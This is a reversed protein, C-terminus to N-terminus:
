QTLFRNRAAILALGYIGLALLYLVQLGLILSAYELVGGVAIGLLNAGFASHPQEEKKFARSFLISAFFIPFSLWAGVFLVRWAFDYKLIFDISVFYGLLLGTFVGAYCWSTKLKVREKWVLLNAAFVVTLISGIMVASVIWTSGFLVAAKTISRAELLMFGAGLLFFYLHHTIKGMPTGFRFVVFASVLILLLVIIYTKPLTPHSLYLHPWDDTALVTSNKAKRILEPRFRSVPVKFNARTGDFIGDPGMAFAVSGFPSGETSLMIPERGFAETMTWYLREGMWKRSSSLHVIFISQPNMLNRVDRFAEVTYMYSELRLTSLGPLQLHSDLANMLILDYEERDRRLFSRGDDNIIRVRPDLYPRHPHTVLGQELIVPDIEVVTVKEAGHTLAMTADNGSGGGLILTRGPARFQYPLQYYPIWPALSTKELAPSFHLADQIRVRDVLIYYGLTQSEPSDKQIYPHMTVKYYPSWQGPTPLTVFSILGAFCMISFLSFLRSKEKVDIFLLVVV